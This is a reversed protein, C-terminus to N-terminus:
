RQLADRPIQNPVDAVILIQRAMVYCRIWLWDPSQACITWCFSLGTKPNVRCYHREPLDYMRTVFYDLVLYDIYRGNKVLALLTYSVYGVMEDVVMPDHVMDSGLFVVTDLGIISFGSPVLQPNHYYSEFGPIVSDLVARAVLQFASLPISDGEQAVVAPDLKIRDFALLSDLQYAGWRQLRQNHLKCGTLQLIPHFPQHHFDFSLLLCEDNTLSGPVWISTARSGGGM